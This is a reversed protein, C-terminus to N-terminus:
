THDPGPYPFDLEIDYRNHLSARVMEYLKNEARAWVDAYLVYDGVDFQAM